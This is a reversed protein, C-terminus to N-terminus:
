NKLKKKKLCFDAYSIRMLSQLESTHEESRGSHRRDYRRGRRTSGPWCCRPVTRHGVSLSAGEQPDAIGQAAVPCVTQPQTAAAAGDRDQDATLAFAQAASM